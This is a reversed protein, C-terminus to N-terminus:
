LLVSFIAVMIIVGVIIVVLRKPDRILESAGFFAEILFILIGAGIVMIGVFGFMGLNDILRSHTQFPAEPIFKLPYPDFFSEGSTPSTFNLQSDCISDNNADTCNDSYGTGTFNLWYNYSFNATPSSGQNDGNIIQGTSTNMTNNYFWIKMPESTGTFYTFLLGNSIFTNNTFVMNAQRDFNMTGFFVNNRITKNQSGDYNLHLYFPYSCVKGSYNQCVINNEVIYSNTFRDSWIGFNYGTVFCNKMTLNYAGDDGYLLVGTGGSNSGLIKYENCDFTTGTVNMLICASFPLSYNSLGLIDSTLQVIDGSSSIFLKDNCDNCSNCEYTIAKATGVFLMFAFLGIFLVLKKM